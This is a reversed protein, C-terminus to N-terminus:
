GEELLLQFSKEQWPERQRCKPSPPRRGELEGEREGGGKCEKGEKNYIFYLLIINM